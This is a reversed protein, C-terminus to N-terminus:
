PKRNWGLARSCEAISKPPLLPSDLGCSGHCSQFDSCHEKWEGSKPVRLAERGLPLIKKEEM